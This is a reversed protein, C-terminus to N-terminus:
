ALRPNYEVMDGHRITNTYGTHHKITKVFPIDLYWSVLMAIDHMEDLRATPFIIRRKNGIDVYLNWNPSQRQTTVIVEYDKSLKAILKAVRKAILRSIFQKM